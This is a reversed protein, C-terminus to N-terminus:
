PKRNRTRAASVVAAPIAELVVISRGAVAHTTAALWDQQDDGPPESETTDLRIRWTTGYLPPPLAFDVPASHANFLLLFDSDLIRQGHPDPERIAQGNLFVMLTRAYGNRWDLEDMETGDSSFWEIDGLDSKGGHAADGAFFRRRRFVDHDKRLSVLASTFALLHSESQALKWDIWALESDQCYANNNGLQTRGIEDGHAIMPVGQSLLLTTLFNRQQQRRLANIADDNTEGEVGCNWSRNHSEGDNNGEGNADNHKDNYSVLDRL